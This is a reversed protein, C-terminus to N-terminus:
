PMCVWHMCEPFGDQAPVTVWDCVPNFEFRLRAIATLKKPEIYPRHDPRAALVKKLFDGEDKELFAQVSVEKAPHALLIKGSKTFVLSYFVQENDGVDRELATVAQESLRRVYPSVYPSYPACKGEM